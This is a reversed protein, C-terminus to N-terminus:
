PNFQLEVKNSDHPHVKAPVKKGIFTKVLNVGETPLAVKKSLIYPSKDKIYVEYDMRVVPKFDKSEGTDEVTIIKAEGSIGEKKVMERDQETWGEGEFSPRGAGEGLGQGQPDIVVNQPNKPDIKVGLMVGPQFRPVDLRSIITKIEVQYPPKSGDYVELKMSVFPQDNVTIVGKGSEGLSIIKAKVARGEALIRKRDGGGMFHKFLGKFAFLTIGIPILIMAIIFVLPPGSEEEEVVGIDESELSISSDSSNINEVSNDNAVLFFALAIGVIVLDGVIFAIILKKNM